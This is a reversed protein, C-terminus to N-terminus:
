KRKGVIVMKKVIKQPNRELMIKHHACTAFLNVGNAEPRELIRGEPFSWLFKNAEAIIRNMFGKQWYRSNRCWKSSKNKHGKVERMYKEQADLDFEQIVLYYPEEVLENFLPAEPPCSARTGYMPCGKPHNPYPLLCWERVKPHWIVRKLPIIM